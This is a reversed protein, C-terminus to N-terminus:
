LSGGRADSIVKRVREDIYANVVEALREKAKDKVEGRAMHYDDFADLIDDLSM